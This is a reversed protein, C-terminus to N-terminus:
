GHSTRAGNSISPAAGVDVAMWYVNGLLPPLIGQKMYAAQVVSEGMADIPANALMDILTFIDIWVAGQIGSVSIPGVTSFGGAAWITAMGGANATDRVRLALGDNAGNRQQYSAGGNTGLSDPFQGAVGFNPNITGARASAIVDAGPTIVSGTVGIGLHLTTDADTNVLNNVTDVSYATPPAGTRPNDHTMPFPSGLGYYSAQQVGMGDANTMAGWNPNSAINFGFYWTATTPLIRAPTNLTVVAGFVMPMTSSTAAFALTQSGLTGPTPNSSLLIGGLSPDPQGPNAPDDQRIVVDFFERTSGNFDQLVGFFSKVEGLQTSDTTGVGNFIAGDVKTLIDGEVSNILSRTVADTEEPYVEFQNQAAVAGALSAVTLLPLYCRM